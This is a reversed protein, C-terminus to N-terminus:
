QRRTAMVPKVPLTHTGNVSWIIGWFDAVFAGGEELLEKFAKHEGIQGLVSVVYRAALNRLPDCINGYDPPTNSYVFRVFETIGAVGADYLKFSRLTQYLKSLVIHRLDEIGYKDALVYLRVQEVFVPSFDEWPGTNEPPAFKQTSNDSKHSAPIVLSEQFTDCLQRTWVGREKYPLEISSPRPTDKAFFDVKPFPEPLPEPEAAPEPAPEDWSESFSSEGYRYGKKKKKHNVMPKPTEMIPKSMEMIPPCGDILRCSPPTYDRHYAFECLRTFSDVDVDSWDARRTKAETM